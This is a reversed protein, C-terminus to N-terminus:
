YNRTNKILFFDSQSFVLLINNKLLNENKNKQIKKNIKQKQQQIKSYLFLM